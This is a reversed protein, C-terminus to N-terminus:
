KEVGMKRGWTDSSYASFHPYFFSLLLHSGTKMMKGDMM